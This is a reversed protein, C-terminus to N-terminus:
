IVHCARRTTAPAYPLVCLVARIKGLHINKPISQAHLIAHIKYPILLDARTKGLPIPLTARKITKYKSHKKKTRYM